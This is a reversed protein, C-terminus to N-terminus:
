SSLAGVGGGDSIVACGRRPDGIGGRGGMGETGVASSTNAAILGGVGAVGCLCLDELRVLRGDSPSPLSSCPVGLRLVVGVGCVVEVEDHVWTVGM